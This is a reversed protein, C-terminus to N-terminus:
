QSRITRLLIAMLATGLSSSKQSPADHSDYFSAYLTYTAHMEFDSASRNISGTRSLALIKASLIQSTGAQLLM